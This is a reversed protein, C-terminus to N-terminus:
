GNSVKDGNAYLVKIEIDECYLHISSDEFDLVEYQLESNFDALKRNVIELGSIWGLGDYVCNRANIFRLLVTDKEEKDSIMLDVCIKDLWTEYDFDRYWKFEQVKSFHCWHREPFYAFFADIGKIGKYLKKDM